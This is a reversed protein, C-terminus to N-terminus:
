PVAAPKPKWANRAAEVMRQRAKEASVEGADSRSAGEAARRVAALGEDDESGSGADEHTGARELEIDYRAQIYDDSKGDAKFEPALKKLVALKIDKESLKPLAKVDAEDLHPRAQTELAVRADILARIREPNEADKKAAELKTVDEALADARAKAKEAEAKAAAADKEAKALADVHQSTLKAVAQGLQESGEYEVGDIRVKVPPEQGTPGTQIPPPLAAPSNTVQVADHADM